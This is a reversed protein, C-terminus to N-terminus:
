SACWIMVHCGGSGSCGALAKGGHQQHSGLRGDTYDLQTIIDGTGKWTGFGHAWGTGEANHTTGGGTYVGDAKYVMTNGSCKKGAKFSDTYKSIDDFKCYEPFYTQKAGDSGYQHMLYQGDCNAKIWTDSMKGAQGDLPSTVLAGTNIAGTSMMTKGPNSGSKADDTIKYALTWGRDHWFACQTPIETDGDMVTYTVSPVDDTLVADVARSHSPKRAKLDYYEQCNNYPGLAPPPMPPPASPPPSPPPPGLIVDVATVVSSDPGLVPIDLSDFSVSISAGEVADAPLPCELYPSLSLLEGQSARQEELLARVPPSPPAGDVICQFMPRTACPAGPAVGSCSSPVGILPLVMKGNAYAAATMLATPTTPTSLCDVKLSAGNSVLQATSSMTTLLFMM